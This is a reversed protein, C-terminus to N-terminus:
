INQTYKNTENFYFLLCFFRFHVGNRADCGFVEFAGAIFHNIARMRADRENWNKEEKTESLNKKENYKSHADQCPAPM